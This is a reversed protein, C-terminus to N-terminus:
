IIGGSGGNSAKKSRTKVHPVKRQKLIEQLQWLHMIYLDDHLTQVVAALRDDETLVGERYVRSQDIVFSKALEVSGDKLKKKPTRFDIPNAQQLLEMYNGLNYHEELFPMESAPILILDNRYPIKYFHLDFFCFVAKMSQKDRKLKEVWEQYLLIRPSKQGKQQRQKSTKAEILYRGLDTDIYVDGKLGSYAGSLPVRMAQAFLHALNREHLRARSKNNKNRISAAHINMLGRNKAENPTMTRDPIFRIKYTVKREKIRKDLSPYSDAYKGKRGM